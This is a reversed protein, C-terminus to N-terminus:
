AAERLEPTKIIDKNLEKFIAQTDESAMQLQEVTLERNFNQSTTKIKDSRLLRFALEIRKEESIGFLLKFNDNESSGWFYFIIGIEFASPHFCEFNRTLTLYRLCHLAALRPFKGQHLWESYKQEHEAIHDQATKNFSFSDKELLSSIKAPLHPWMSELESKVRSFISVECAVIQLHLMIRKLAERTVPNDSKESEINLKTSINLYEDSLGTSQSKNTSPKESINHLATKPEKELDVDLHHIIESLKDLVTLPSTKATETHSTAISSKIVAHSELEKLTLDRLADPFDSYGQLELESLLLCYISKCTDYNDFYASGIGLSEELILGIEDLTLEHFGNNIAFTDAILDGLLERFNDSLPLSNKIPKTESSM